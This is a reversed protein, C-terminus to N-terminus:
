LFQDEPINFNSRFVRVMKVASCNEAAPMQAVLSYATQMYKLRRNIEINKIKIKLISSAFFVIFINNQRKNYNM